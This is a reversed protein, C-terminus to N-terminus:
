ETGKNLSYTNIGAFVADEVGEEWTITKTDM